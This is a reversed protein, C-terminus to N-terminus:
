FTGVLSCMTTGAEVVSRAARLSTYSWTDVPTFEPFAKGVINRAANLDRDLVLGCVPCIFTRDSLKLNSRKSGCRSCTKSSPFFRDVIRVECGYIVSKYEFMRRITGFSADQIALALCHNKVIGAVNLDELAIAQNKGCISSTMKHLFDQRINYVRAHRRALRKKAKNRNKSGKIRRSVVRQARKLQKQAKRLPKPNDFADGSSTVALSKIGLDIGITSDETREISRNTDVSISIFWRDARKSVTASIIKGEFRLEERMKVWGIKPIKVSKGRVEIRDNSVYFSDKCGRKHFTPYKTNGKFFSSFAHQINAFPQAHADRHIDKMWPYKEYKIKNFQRKLEMGSPNEGCNYQEIWHALAWNYVFRVTGAAQRFYTEQDKDPDLAIKHALQM